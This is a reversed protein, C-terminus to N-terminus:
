SNGCVGRKELQWATHMDSSVHWIPLNSSRFGFASILATMKLLINVGGGGTQHMWEATKEDYWVKCLGAGNDDDVYALACFTANRSGSIPVPSPVKSFKQYLYKKAKLKTATAPNGKEGKPGKPGPLGAPGKLGPPGAPGELGPPGAPGTEGRQSVLNELEKICKIVQEATSQESIGECSAAWTKTVTAMILLGFVLVVIRKM